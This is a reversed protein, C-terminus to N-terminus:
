QRGGSPHVYNALITLFGVLASATMEDLPHGYARLAGLIVFAALGGAGGSVTSPTPMWGSPPTNSSQPVPNPNNM